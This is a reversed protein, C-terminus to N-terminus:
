SKFKNHHGRQVVEVDEESDEDHETIKPIVLAKASDAFLKKKPDSSVENFKKSLIHTM